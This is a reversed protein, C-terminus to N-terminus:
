PLYEFHSSKKHFISHTYHQTHNHRSCSHWLFDYVLCLFSLCCVCITELDIFKAFLAACVCVIQTNFQWAGAWLRFPISLLNSCFAVVCCQLGASLGLSLYFCLSFQFWIVCGWGRSRGWCWGWCSGWGSRACVFLCSRKPQSKYVLIEFAKQTTVWAAFATTAPPAHPALPLPLPLPCSFFTYM